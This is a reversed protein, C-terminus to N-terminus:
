KSRAAEAELAKVRYTVYATLAREAAPIGLVLALLAVILPELIAVYPQTVPWAAVIIGAILAVLATLQERTLLVPLKPM